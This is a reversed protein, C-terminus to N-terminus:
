SEGAAQLTDATIGNTSTQYDYITFDQETLSLNRIRLIAFQKKKDKLPKEYTKCMRQEWIMKRKYAAKENPKNLDYKLGKIYLTNRDQEKLRMDEREEITYFKKKYYDCLAVKYGKPTRYYNKFTRRYEEKHQQIFKAGLGKSAFVKSVFEDHKEDPKAIYKVIYNVSQDSVGKKGVDFWGYSWNEAVTDIDNTFVIGHAHIRETCEQGRETAFFHREKVGSRYNRKRWAEILKGFEANWQSTDEPNRFTSLTEDSITLTIFYAPTTQSKLEEYLRQKWDNARRNRCEQCRGCPIKVGHLRSDKAPAKKYRPNELIVPFLCM